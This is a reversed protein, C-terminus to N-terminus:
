FPQNATGPLLTFMTWHIIHLFCIHSAEKDIDRYYFQVRVWDISWGKLIIHELKKKMKRFM